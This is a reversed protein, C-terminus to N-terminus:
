ERVRERAVKSRVPDKKRPKSFKSTIQDTNLVLNAASAEAQRKLKNATKKARLILMRHAQKPNVWDHRRGATLSPIPIRM